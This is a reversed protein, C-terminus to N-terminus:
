GTLLYHICHQILLLLIFLLVILDKAVSLLEKVGPCLECTRKVFFDLADFTLKLRPFPVPETGNVPSRIDLEQAM